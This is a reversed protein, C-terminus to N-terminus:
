MESPAVCFLADIYTEFKYSPQSAFHANNIIVLKVKLLLQPRMLMEQLKMKSGKLSLFNVVSLQMYMYSSLLENPVHLSGSQHLNLQSYYKIRVLQRGLIHKWVEGLTLTRSM